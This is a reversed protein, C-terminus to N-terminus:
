RAQRHNHLHCNEPSHAVAKLQPHPLRPRGVAVRHRRRDAVGVPEPDALGLRIAVGLALALGLQAVALWLEPVAVRLVREAVAFGLEALSLRQEPAAVRQDAPSLRQLAPAVRHAARAAAPVDTSRGRPSPESARMPDM